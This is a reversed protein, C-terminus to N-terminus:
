LLLTKPVSVGKKPNYGGFIDRASGTKSAAPLQRQGSQLMLMEAKQGATAPATAAAAGGTAGPARGMFANKFAKMRPSNMLSALAGKGGQMGGMAAMGGKALRAPLGWPLLMGGMMGLADAGAEASNVHGGAPTYLENPLMGLLATDAM